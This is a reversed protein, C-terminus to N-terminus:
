ALESAIKSLLRWVPEFAEERGAQLLHGGHFVSLPASFHQALRQAHDLGTVRDAEGALVIMREGPVLSPRALPSIPWQAARLADRQAAQELPSGLLRGDRYAIEEIAALPVLLVAFRLAAELTALLAASYGGLSMGMVGLSAVHGALYDFLARHDFVVQRFGEITFRPDNSPFAPPWYGRAEARRLGHLPLVTLVVDFGSDFLRKLPWMRTEIAFEGSMYGHIL